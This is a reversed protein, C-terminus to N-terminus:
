SCHSILPLSNGPQFFGSEGHHHNHLPKDDDVTLYNSEGHGWVLPSSLIISQVVNELPVRSDKTRTSPIM